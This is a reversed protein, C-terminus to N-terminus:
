FHKGSLIAFVTMWIIKLDLAFNRNELYELDMQLRIQMKEMTDTYGNYLTAKSFLGPRMRFLFRYEPNIEMIQDVFYKREPRPGVLSMDGILVNWLQPLEDLHHRRLFAGIPTLRSDNEACLQPIGNEEADERMTRFKYLTFVKGKYGVREQRFIVNKGNFLRLLLYIILFFPFFLLLGLASVIIDFYRKVIRSSTSMGDKVKKRPKAQGIEEIEMM